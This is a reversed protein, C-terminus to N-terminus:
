PINLILVHMQKGSQMCEILIYCFLMTSYEMPISLERPLKNLLKSNQVTRHSVASTSVSM